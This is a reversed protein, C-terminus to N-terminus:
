DAKAGARRVVEAWKATEKRILEAFQAPTSAQPQAGLAAYRDKVFQAAAAQKM